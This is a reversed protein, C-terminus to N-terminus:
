FLGTVLATYGAVFLVMNVTIARLARIGQRRASRTLAVTMAVLVILAGLLGLVTAFGEEGDNSNPDGLWWGNVAGIAQIGIGLSLAPLLGFVFGLFDVAVISAWLPLGDRSSTTTTYRTRISM